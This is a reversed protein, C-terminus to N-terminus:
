DIVSYEEFSLPYQKALIEWAERYTRALVKVYATKDTHKFVFRRFKKLEKVAQTYQPTLRIKVM